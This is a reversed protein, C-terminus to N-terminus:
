MNDLFRILFRQERYALKIMQTMRMVIDVNIHTCNDNRKMDVGVPIVCARFSIDDGDNLPPTDMPSNLKFDILIERREFPLLESYNLQLYNGQLSMEPSSSIYNMVNDDFDFFVSGNSTLNGLNSLILKVQLDFGPRALSIPVVKIGADIAGTGKPSICTEQYVTDPGSLDLTFIEPNFNFHEMNGIDLSVEFNGDPFRFVNQNEPTSPFVYFLEEESEVKLKPIINIPTKDSCDASTGYFIESHLTNLVDGYVDPFTCDTYYRIDYDDYWRMSLEHQIIPIQDESCCINIRSVDQDRAYITSLNKSGSINLYQLKNDICSLLSLQPCYSLDINTISNLQCRVIRLNSLGSLDLYSLNCSNVNLVELNSMQTFDFNEFTTGRADFDRLHLLGELNRFKLDTGECNLVELSTLGDLNLSTLPNFYCYLLELKTLQSVDLTSIRNTCCVLERLNIFHEIGTMDYIGQNCVNLRDVSQAESVDIEGDNNQDIGLDLLRTKFRDDPINIIQGQVHNSFAILIIISIVKFM